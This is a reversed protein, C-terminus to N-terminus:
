GYQLRDGDTILSFLGQHFSDSFEELELLFLRIPPDLHCTTRGREHRHGIDDHHVRGDKGIGQAPFHQPLEQEGGARGGGNRREQHSEQGVVRESQSRAHAEVREEGVGDDQAHPHVPLQRQPHYQSRAQQKEQQGHQSDALGDDVRNRVRQLPSDRRPIPSKMANM